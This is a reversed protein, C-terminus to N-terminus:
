LKFVNPALLGREFRYVNGSSPDHNLDSAADVDASGAHLARQHIKLGALVDAILNTNGGGVGGGGVGHRLDAALDDVLEVHLVVHRDADGEGGGDEVADDGVHRVEILRPDVDIHISQHLTVQAAGDDGEVVRVGRADGLDGVSRCLAAVPDDHERRLARANARGDDDVARQQGVCLQAVQLDVAGVRLLVRGRALLGELAQVPLLPCLAELAVVAVDLEQEVGVEEYDAAAHRLVM